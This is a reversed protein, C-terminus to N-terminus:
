RSIMCVASVFRAFICVTIDLRVSLLNFLLIKACRANTAPQYLTCLRNKGRPLRNCARDKTQHNLLSEQQQSIGMKFGLLSIDVIKAPPNIDM